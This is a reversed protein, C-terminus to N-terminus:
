HLEVDLLLGRKRRQDDLIQFQAELGDFFDFPQLTIEVHVPLCLPVLESDRLRGLQWPLCSRPPLVTEVPDVEEVDAVHHEHSPLVNLHGVLTPIFDALEVGELLYHLM